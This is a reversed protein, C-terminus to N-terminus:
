DMRYEKTKRVSEVFDIFVNELKKPMKSDHMWNGKEDVSIYRKIEEPPMIIM